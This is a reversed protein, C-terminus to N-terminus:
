MLQKCLGSVGSLARNLTKGNVADKKLITKTTIQLFRM